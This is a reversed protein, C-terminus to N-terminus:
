PKRGIFQEETECRGEEVLIGKRVTKCGGEGALIVEWFGEQVGIWSESDAEPLIWVLIDSEYYPLVYRKLVSVLLCLM